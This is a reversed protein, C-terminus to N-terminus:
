TNKTKEGMLFEAYKFDFETDIDVSREKPMVYAYAGKRYLFQNRKFEPVSVMYIAGNPRYYADHAQRQKFGTKEMFGDLSGNKGLAGCWAIPHELETMSVVAITNKSIFLNYVNRIDDATRMPSTPQLLCFLDFYQGLEEYKDLVELVTEWSTSSDSSATESRLFPVEAGCAKGIRAYKESDTSLMVTDFVGSSLAAEITYAILPKGDLLKINKDPLGKSGSRAPIIAIIRM